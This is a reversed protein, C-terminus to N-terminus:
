PIQWQSAQMGRCFVQLQAWELSELTLHHAKEAELSFLLPRLLSYM